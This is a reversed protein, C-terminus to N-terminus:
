KQQVTENQVFQIFALNIEIENIVKFKIKFLNGFKIQKNYSFNDTILNLKHVISSRKRNHVLKKTIGPRSSPSVFEKSKTM